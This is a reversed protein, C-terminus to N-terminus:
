NWCGSSPTRAGSYDLTMTSCSSDKTAQAGQAVAQITVSTASPVGSLSFSYYASQENDCGSAAQLRAATINAYTLNSTYDREVWQALEMLCSQASTRRSRVIYDQYAPLAISALIGIIAVVVMVEILTFGREKKM